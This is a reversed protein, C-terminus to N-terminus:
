ATHNMAALYLEKRDTQRSVDRSAAHSAGVAEETNHSAIPQCQREMPSPLRQSQAAIEALGSM